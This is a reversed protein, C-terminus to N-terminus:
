ALTLAVHGPKLWQHQLAHHPQCCCCRYYHPFHAAQKRKILIESDDKTKTITYASTQHGISGNPLASTQKWTCAFGQPPVAGASRHLPVATLRM